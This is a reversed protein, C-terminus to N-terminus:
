DHMLVCNLYMTNPDPMPAPTYIEKIIGNEFLSKISQFNSCLLGRYSVVISRNSKM